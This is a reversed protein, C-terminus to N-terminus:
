AIIESRYFYQFWEIAVGFVFVLLLEQVLVQIANVPNTLLSSKM